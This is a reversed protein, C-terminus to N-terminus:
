EDPWTSEDWPVIKTHRGIVYGLIFGIALISWVGFIYFIYEVWDM